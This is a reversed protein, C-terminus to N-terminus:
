CSIAVLQVHKELCDPSEQVHRWLIKLNKCPSLPVSHAVRSWMGYHDICHHRGNYFLVTLFIILTLTYLVWPMVTHFELYLDASSKTWRNSCKCCPKFDQHLTFLIWCTCHEVSDLSLMVATVCQCLRIQLLMQMLYSIGLSQCQLARLFEVQSTSRYMQCNIYM